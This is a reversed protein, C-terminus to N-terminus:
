SPEKPAMPVLSCFNIFCCYNILLIKYKYGNPCLKSNMEREIVTMYDNVNEILIDYKLSFKLNNAGFVSPAYTKKKINYDNEVVYKEPESLSKLTGTVGLIYSFEQPVDAYSFSGCKVLIGINEELSKKTIKIRDFGSYYAFLTKYGYVSNFVINDQEKYGIKDDKIIYDHSEFNKIDYLMNKVAEDIVPEWNAYRQCCAKFVTSEIVLKYTLNARSEWIFNILATVTPDRLVTSPTYVNGYFEKSFFVDVEDILLIKPRNTHVSQAAAPDTANTSIMTEVLKRIDGHQNIVNECLKNFTGYRIQATINLTDFLPQFEKYDRQSLYESYCACSVDFGLLAFVSAVVALTVSKGEGTGIQVLNNQLKEPDPDGVGLIRFISIIQAPHPQFLYSQKTDKEDAEFYHEARKLTVLAFIHAILIPLLSKVNSDWISEKLDQQSNSGSFLLLTASILPQLDADPMLYKGILRNYETQFKDYRKRLRDKDLSDGDLNDIVYAIDHKKTKSNFVSLSYGKFCQHESVIIQGTPNKTQKFLVGLKNIASAGGNKQKFELLVQDIMKDIREKFCVLNKSVTKMKILYDSANKLNNDDQIQAMYRNMLEIIKSDFEELNEKLGTGAKM